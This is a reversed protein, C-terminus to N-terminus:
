RWIFSDCQFVFYTCMYITYTNVSRCRYEQFGGRGYIACLNHCAVGLMDLFYNILKSYMVNEQKPPVQRVKGGFM